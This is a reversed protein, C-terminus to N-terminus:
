LAQLTTLFGTSSQTLRLQGSRSLRDVELFVESWNLEQLRQTLEELTCDPHARVAELIQDAITGRPRM